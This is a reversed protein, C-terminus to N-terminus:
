STEEKSSLAPTLILQGVSDTVVRWAPFVVTTAGFEEIICPGDFSIGWPITEREYVQCNVFEGGFYVRREEKLAKSLPTAPGNRRLTPKEMVGSAVVRLAALEVPMDERSYGYTREYEEGFARGIESIDFGYDIPVRLAWSQGMYRMDVSYRIDIRDRPIGEGELAQLGEEAMEKWLNRLFSIEAEKFGM